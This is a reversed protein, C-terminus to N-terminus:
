SKLADDIMGSLTSVDAYGSVQRLSQDPGIVVLAPYGYEAVYRQYGANRVLQTDIIWTWDFSNENAWDRLEDPTFCGCTVVSISVFDTRESRLEQIAEVQKAVINSAGQTMGSNVFNLLVVSGQYDVLSVNKATLVDVGTFNPATINESAGATAPSPTTVTGSSGSQTNSSCAAVGLVLALLAAVVAIPLIRTLARRFTNM